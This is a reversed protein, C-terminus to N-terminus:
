GRYIGRQDDGSDAEGEGDFCCCGGEVSEEVNFISNKRMITEGFSVLRGEGRSELLALTAQQWSIGFTSCITLSSRSGRLNKRQFGEVENMWSAKRLLVTEGNQKERGRKRQLIWRKTSVLRRDNFITLIAKM